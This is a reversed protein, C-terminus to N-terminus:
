SSRGQLNLPGVAQLWEPTPLVLRRAKTDFLAFVFEAESCLEDGRKMRQLMKGIKGEYSLLETEIVIEDRAYLEKLFKLKVELITPGLGSEKIKALGYGNRTILEWRAEEYLTLYVANNVHGFSDLLTERIVTSYTSM